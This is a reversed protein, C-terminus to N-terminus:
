IPLPGAAGKAAKKDSGKKKRVKEKPCMMKKEIIEDENRQTCWFIWGERPAGVDEVRLESPHLRRQFRAPSALHTPNRQKQSRPKHPHAKQARSARGFAAPSFSPLVEVGPARLHSPNPGSRPRAIGRVQARANALVPIPASSRAPARKCRRLTIQVRVRGTGATASPPRYTPPASQRRPKITRRM